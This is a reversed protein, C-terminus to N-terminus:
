SRIRASSDNNLSLTKGSRVLMPSSALVISLLSCLYDAAALDTMRHLGTVNTFEDLIKGKEKRSVSLYRGLMAEVYELISGRTM